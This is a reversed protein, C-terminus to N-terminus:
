TRSPRPRGLAGIADDWTEYRAWALRHFFNRVPGVVYIPIDRGLAVGLEVERGGTRGEDMTDIMFVAAREVQSVDREAIEAQQTPTPAWYGTGDDEDIWTSLVDWGNAHLRAKVARLRRQAEWKGALYLTPPTV